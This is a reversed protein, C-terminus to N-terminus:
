EPKTDRRRAAGNLISRARNPIASGRKVQFNYFWRRFQSRRPRFERPSLERPKFNGEDRLHCHIKTVLVPILLFKGRIM